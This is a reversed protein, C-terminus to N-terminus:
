TTTTTTTTAPTQTGSTASSFSRNIMVLQKIIQQLLISEQSWGIEKNPWHGM